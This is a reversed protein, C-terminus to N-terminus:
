VGPVRNSAPNPHIGRPANLSERAIGVTAPRLLPRRFGARALDLRSLAKVLMEFTLIGAVAEPWRRVGIPELAAVALVGGSIHAPAFEAPFHLGLLRRAGLGAVEGRANRSAQPRGHQAVQCRASVACQRSGPNRRPLRSQAHEGPAQRQVNQGLRDVYWCRRMRATEARRSTAQPWPNGQARPEQVSLWLRLRM